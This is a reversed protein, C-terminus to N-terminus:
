GKTWRLRLEPSWHSNSEVNQQKETTGNGGFWGNLRKTLGGNLIDQIHQVILNIAVTNFFSFMLAHGPNIVITIKLKPKFASPPTESPQLQCVANAFILSHFVTNRLFLLLFISRIWWVTREHENRCLDWWINGTRQTDSSVNQTTQSISILYHLFCWKWFSSWNKCRSGKHIGAAFVKM